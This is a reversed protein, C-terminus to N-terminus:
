REPDLPEAEVHLDLDGGAVSDTEDDEHLVVDLHHELAARADRAVDRRERLTRERRRAHREVELDRVERRDARGHLSALDDDGPGFSDGPWRSRRGRAPRTRRRTRPARM